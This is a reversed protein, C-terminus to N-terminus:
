VCRDAVIKHLWVGKKLLVFGVACKILESMQCILYIFVIDMATARTLCFALPISILWLVSSDFLFTIMTKGGARITFFAAHIFASIPVHLALVYMFDRALRRVEESTRYLGPFFPAAAAMLVAIVLSSSVALFILKNDTDRAEEMEDAGLLQGVVIAVSSGIAIYLISFISNITTAINMGAIVQIGRVSYCQVMFVQRTYM